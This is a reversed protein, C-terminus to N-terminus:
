DDADAQQQNVKIIYNSNLILSKSAYMKQGNTLQSQGGLSTTQMSKTM